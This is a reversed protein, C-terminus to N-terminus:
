KGGTLAATHKHKDKKGGVKKDGEDSGNNITTMSDGGTLKKHKDEKDCVQEVGESPGYKVRTLTVSFQFINWGLHFLICILHGGKFCNKTM